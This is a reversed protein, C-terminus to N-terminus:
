GYSFSAPPLQHVLSGGLTSSQVVSFPLQEPPVGPSPPLLEVDGSPRSTPSAGQMIRLQVGSLAELRVRAPLREIEGAAQDIVDKM